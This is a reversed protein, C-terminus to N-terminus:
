AREVRDVIRLLHGVGKREAERGFSQEIAGKFIRITGEREREGAAENVEVEYQVFIRFSCKEVLRLLAEFCLDLQNGTTGEVVVESLVFTVDLKEADPFHSSMSAEFEDPGTPTLISGQALTLTDDAYAQFIDKDLAYFDDQRGPANGCPLHFFIEVPQQESEPEPEAEREEIDVVPQNAVWNATSQDDPQAQAVAQTDIVDIDARNTAIQAWTRSTQDAM